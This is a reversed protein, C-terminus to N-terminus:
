RRVPHIEGKPCAVGAPSRAGDRGLRARVDDGIRGVSQEFGGDKMRDSMWGGNMGLLDPHFLLLPLWIYYTVHSVYRFHERKEVGGDVWALDVYLGRREVVYGPVVSLTFISLLMSWGSETHEGGYTITFDAPAGPTSTLEAPVGARALAAQVNDARELRETEIASRPEVNFERCVDFVVPSRLPPLIEAPLRPPVDWEAIKAVACGNTALVLVAAFALTAPNDRGM